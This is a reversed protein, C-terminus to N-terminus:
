ISIYGVFYYRDDLPLEKNHSASGVNYSWWKGTDGVYKAMFWVNSITSYMIYGEGTVGPELKGKVVPQKV